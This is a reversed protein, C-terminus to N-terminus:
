AEDPLPPLPAWHTVGDEHRLAIEFNKGDDLYWWDDWHVVAMGGDFNSGAILIYTGDQPATEFPQWDM